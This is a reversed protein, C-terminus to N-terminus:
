LISVSILGHTWEETDVTAHRLQSGDLLQLPALLAVNECRVWLHRWNIRNVKREEGGEGTGVEGKLGGGEGRKMEMEM